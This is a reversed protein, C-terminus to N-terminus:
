LKQIYDQWFLLKVWLVILYANKNGLCIWPKLVIEPTISCVYWPVNPQSKELLITSIQKTSHVHNLKLLLRSGM